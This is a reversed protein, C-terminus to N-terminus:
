KIFFWYALFALAVIVVLGIIKPLCGKIIKAVIFLLILAVIVTIVLAIINM